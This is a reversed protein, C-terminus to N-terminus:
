FNSYLVRQVEEASRSGFDCTYSLQTMRYGPPPRVARKSGEPGIGLWYPNKATWPLRIDSTAEQRRMRKCAGKATAVLTDQKDLTQTYRVSIHTSSADTVVAAIWPPLRREFLSNSCVEVIDGHKLNLQETPEFLRGNVYRVRDVSSKAVADPKARKSPWDPRASM